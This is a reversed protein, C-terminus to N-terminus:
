QNVMFIRAVADNNLHLAPAPLSTGDPDLEPEIVILEDGRRVPAMDALACAAALAPSNMASDVDFAAKIERSPRLPKISHGAHDLLVPAKRQRCRIM